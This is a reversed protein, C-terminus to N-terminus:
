QSGQFSRFVRLKKGWKWVKFAEAEEGEGSVGSVLLPHMPKSWFQSQCSPSKIRVGHGELM